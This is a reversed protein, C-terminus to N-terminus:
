YKREMPENRTQVLPKYDLRIDALLGDGTKYAMTHRMYNTDDRNPNQNVESGTEDWSPVDLPTRTHGPVLVLILVLVM